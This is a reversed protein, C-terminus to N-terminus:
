CGGFIPPKPLNECPTQCADRLRGTEVARAKQEPTPDEPLQVWPYAKNCRDWCTNVNIADRRDRDAQDLFDTLRKELRMRRQEPSLPTPQVGSAAPGQALALALCLWATKM